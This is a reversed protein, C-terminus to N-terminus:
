LVLSVALVSGFGVGTLGVVGGGATMGGAFQMGRLIPPGYTYKWDTHQLLLNGGGNGVGRGSALSILSAGLGAPALCTRMFDIADGSTELYRVPTKLYYDSNPQPIDRETHPPATCKIQCRLPPPAAGTCGLGSGCWMLVARVTMSTIVTDPPPNSSPSPPPPPVGGIGELSV